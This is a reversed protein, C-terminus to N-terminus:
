FFNGITKFVQTTTSSIPGGVNASYWTKPAYRTITGDKQVNVVPAGGIASNVAKVPSSNNIASVLPETTHQAVWLSPGYIQAVGPIGLIGSSKLFTPDRWTGTVPPPLRTPATPAPLKATYLNWALLGGAVVVGAVLITEGTDM